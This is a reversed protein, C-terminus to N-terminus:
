RDGDRGLRRGKAIRRIITVNVVAGEAHSLGVDCGHRSVAQCMRELKGATDATSTGTRKWPEEIM